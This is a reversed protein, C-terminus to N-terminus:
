KKSDANSDAKFNIEINGRTLEKLFDNKHRSFQEMFKSDM